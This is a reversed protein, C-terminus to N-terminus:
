IMLLASEILVCGWSILHKQGDKDVSLHNPRLNYGPNGDM